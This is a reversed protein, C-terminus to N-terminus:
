GFDLTSLDSRSFPLNNYICYMLICALHYVIFRFCYKRPKPPAIPKASFAPCQPFPTPYSESFLWVSATKTWPIHFSAATAGNHHSTYSITSSRSVHRLPNFTNRSPITLEGLRCCAWFAVLAVAWVAADFSDQPNLHSCLTLLHHISVPQREPRRNRISIKVAGAKARSVYGDNGFWEAGNVDHWAHLGSMWGKMSRGTSGHTRVSWNIFAALLTRSAPMRSSEPIDELDCFQHFRLLGAAYNSRTDADLSEVLLQQTQRASDPSVSTDAFEAATQTCFPSTWCWLRDAAPVLPRYPSPAVSNEPKPKRYRKGSIPARLVIEQLASISVLHSNMSLCTPTLYSISSSGISVFHSM